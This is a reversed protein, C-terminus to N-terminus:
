IHSLFILIAKHKPQKSYWLIESLRECGGCSGKSQVTNMVGLCSVLAEVGSRLKETDSCLRNM